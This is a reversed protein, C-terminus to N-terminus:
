EGFECGFIQFGQFKVLSDIGYHFKGKKISKTCNESRFFNQIM